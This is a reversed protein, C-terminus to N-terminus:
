RGTPGYGNKKWSVVRYNSDTKMKWPTRDKRLLLPTRGLSRRHPCEPSRNLSLVFGLCSSQGHGQAKDGSVALGGAGGVSTEDLNSVGWSHCPLFISM